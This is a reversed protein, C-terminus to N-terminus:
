PKMKARDLDRKIRAKRDEYVEKFPGEVLSKIEQFSVKPGCGGAEHVWSSGDQSVTIRGCQPCPRTQFLEPGIHISGPGEPEIHVSSSGALLSQIAEAMGPEGHDVPFRSAQYGVQHADPIDATLASHGDEKLFLARKGPAESEEKRITAVLDDSLALEGRDVRELIETLNGPFGRWKQSDM